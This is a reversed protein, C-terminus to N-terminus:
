LGQLSLLSALRGHLAMPFCRPELNLMLGLIISGSLFDADCPFSPGPAGRGGDPTSKSSTSAPWVPTPHGFTDMASEWVPTM